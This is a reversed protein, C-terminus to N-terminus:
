LLICILGNCGDNVIRQLTKQLKEQVHDPMRGVKGSMNDRVLDYLPKGFINTQWIAGPDQEFTEMLYSVLAESQEASGVIPSIETHMDVRFIQLASANARLRVGFKNGQQMIEPDELAMEDMAPPVMGYGLTQASDLAGAIRDYERKAASFSRLAAMLENEDSIDYGTQESLIRYFMGEAPELNITANGNGLELQELTAPQFDELEALADRMLGTDRMRSLQPLAEQIPQLVRQLLWHDTPLQMLYGPLRIHLLSLPFEMLMQELLDAAMAGNMHLADLAVVSVDYKAALEERLLQCRAGDPETSNIVIVFPKGTDRLENVVREEAEMYSDRPIDTISGDTTMVIGITSHDTIVKRTGLEAAEEFPIEHDFWPTRVMRPVEGEMNGIAGPIWYGVCDVLRVDCQANDGLELRVAENPVFKPQTTMITKGAGSQPLEDVVRARIHENEIGPLVLLDVFRKIFTSKGARVPGVVGLFISGQTRVAIDQYLEMRDM